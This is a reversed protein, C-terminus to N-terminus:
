VRVSVVGSSISSRLHNAFQKGDPQRAVVVKIHIVVGKHTITHSGPPCYVHLAVGVLSNEPVYWVHTCPHVERSKCGAWECALSQCHQRALCFIAPLCMCDPVVWRDTGDLSRHIVPPFEHSM